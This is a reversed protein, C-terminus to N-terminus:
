LGPREAKPDESESPLVVTLEWCTSPQFKPQPIGIASVLALYPSIPTGQHSMNAHLLASVIGAAHTHSLPTYHFSWATLCIQIQIGARDSKMSESLDTGRHFRVKRTKLM